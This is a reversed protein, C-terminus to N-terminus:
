PRLEHKEGTDSGKRPEGVATREQELPGLDHSVKKSQGGLPSVTITEGSISM